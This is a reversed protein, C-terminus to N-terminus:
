SYQSWKNSSFAVQCPPGTANAVSYPACEPLITKSPKPGYLLAGWTHNPTLTNGSFTVVQDKRNSPNERCSNFATSKAVPFAVTNVPANTWGWRCWDAGAVQAKAVDDPSALAADYKAASAAAANKNLSYNGEDYYYVEPAPTTCAGSVCTQPATCDTDLTCASKSGGYMVYIIMVIILLAAVALAIQIQTSM